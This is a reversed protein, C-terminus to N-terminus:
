DYLVTDSVSIYKYLRASHRIKKCGYERSTHIKSLVSKKIQKGTFIKTNIYSLKM